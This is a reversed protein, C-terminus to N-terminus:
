ATKTAIEKKTKFTSIILISHKQHPTPIITTFHPTLPPNDTHLPTDFFTRKKADHIEVFKVRILYRRLLGFVRGINEGAIQLVKSARLNFM